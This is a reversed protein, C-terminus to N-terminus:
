PPTPHAKLILTRSLTLTLTTGHAEVYDVEAAGRGADHLALRIVEVQNPNPNPLLPLPLPLPLSGM